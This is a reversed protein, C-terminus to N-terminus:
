LGEIPRKELPLLSCVEHSLQQCNEKWQRFQFCQTQIEQYKSQEQQVKDQIDTLYGYCQKLFQSSDIFTLIEEKNNNFNKVMKKKTDKLAKEKKHQDWLQWANLAIGLVSLFAGGYKAIDGALNVAGWPQFKFSPAIFDRAALITQNNVGSVWKGAADLGTQGYKQLFDNFTSSENNFRTEVRQLEVRASDAYDSFINKVRTQVNVGKNGVERVLFDDITDLGLGQTQLIMGDFYHIIRERLEKKDAEIRAEAQQKAALMEECMKKMRDAQFAAEEFKKTAKPLVIHMVDRLISGQTQLMIARAGGQQAIVEKTATQLNAIHSIQNYVDLHQQWYGFGRNEPNAALAVVPIKQVQTATLAPFIDQLRQRVNAQKIQLLQNFEQEDEMDAVEDFKALVFVARDLLNLTSFLWTLEEEHAQKIPNTSDMLYVILDARSVYDRTIDKYYKGNEKQKYGYLGPTDVLECYDTQYTKIENSSEQAAIKFESVAAPDIRGLWAAMLTSKGESFGGTFVISLKRNVTKAKEQLQIIKEQLEPSIEVELEKGQQLLAEVKKVQEGTKAQEQSWYQETQNNIKTM